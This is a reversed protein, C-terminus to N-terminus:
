SSVDPDQESSVRKNDARHQASTKSEPMDDAGVTVREGVSAGGAISVSDVKLQESRPQPFAADNPFSVTQPALLVAGSEPQLPKILIESATPNQSPAPARSHEAASIDASSARSVPQM